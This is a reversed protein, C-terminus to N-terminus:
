AKFLRIKASSEAVTPIERIEAMVVDISSFMTRRLDDEYSLQVDKSGDGFIYKRMIRRPPEFSIELEECLSKVYILTINMFEERIAELVTQVARIHKACQHINLEETQLYNQVDNVDWLIPQWFYCLFSHLQMDVLLSGADTRTNFSESTGTLKTARAHNATLFIKQIQIDSHKGGGM